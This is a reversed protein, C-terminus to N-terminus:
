PCQILQLEKLTQLFAEVDNAAQGREVDFGGTLRDILQGGDECTTLQKWLFAGTKNFTHIRARVRDFIFVEDHITRVSLHKNITFPM